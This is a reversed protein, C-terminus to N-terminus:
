SARTGGPNPPSGDIEAVLEAVVRGLERTVPGPHRRELVAAARTYYWRQDSPGAHFREWLSPGHDRLDALLSRANHLKDASAVRLAPITASRELRALYSEKRARWDAADRSSSGDLSDSCERVVAAVEGGFRREIEAELGPVEGGHDECADHLMAAVADDESGGDELVLGAVALLHAVYPIATGKRRQTAHLDAAWGLAEAFRATLVTTPPEEDFAGPM